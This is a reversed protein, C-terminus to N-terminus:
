FTPNQNDCASRKPSRMRESCDAHDRASVVCMNQENQEPNYSPFNAIKFAANADRIRQQDKAQLNSLKRNM